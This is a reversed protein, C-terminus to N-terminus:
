RAAPGATSPPTATPLSRSSASLTRRSSCSKARFAKTRPATPTTTSATWHSTISHAAGPTLLTLDAYARGNLPLDVAQKQGIVTARESTDTEILLAAGTVEVTETTDGLELTLDVRQRAGVVVTFVDSIAKKFQMMEAEVRYEGIAANLFQYNGTEDTSGRQTVGTQVNSLSVAADPIVAGSADRVTGLVAARDFQASLSLTGACILFMLRIFNKMTKRM